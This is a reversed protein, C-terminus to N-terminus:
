PSGSEAVLTVYHILSPLYFKSKTRRKVKNVKLIVDRYEVSNLDIIVM